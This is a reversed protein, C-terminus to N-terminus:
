SLRKYYDDGGQPSSPSTHFVLGPQSPTELLPAGKNALVPMPVALGSSSPVTADVFPATGKDAVAMRQEV